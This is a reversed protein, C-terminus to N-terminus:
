LPEREALNMPRGGRHLAGCDVEGERRVAAVVVLLGRGCRGARDALVGEEGRVGVAGRECRGEGAAM